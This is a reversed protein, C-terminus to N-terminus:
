EVTDEPADETTDEEAETDAETTSNNDLTGIADLAKAIIEKVDANDTTPKEANGKLWDAAQKLITIAEETSQKYNLEVEKKETIFQKLSM